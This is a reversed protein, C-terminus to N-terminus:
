NKMSPDQQGEALLKLFLLTALEFFRPLEPEISAVWLYREMRKFLQLLAAKDNIPKQRNDNMRAEKLFAWTEAM